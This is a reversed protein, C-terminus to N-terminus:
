TGSVSRSRCTIRYEDFHIASISRRFSRGVETVLADPLAGRGLLSVHPQFHRAGFANRRHNSPKRNGIVDPTEFQYFYARRELIHDFQDAQRQLRAGISHKSADIDPRPNEGGPAMVMLRFHQTPISLAERRTVSELGSLARRAHYITLHLNRRLKSRVIDWESRFFSHVEEESEKSVFIMANVSALHRPM